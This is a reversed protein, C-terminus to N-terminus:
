LGHEVEDWFPPMLTHQLQAQAQSQPQIVACTTAIEAHSTKVLKHPQQYAKGDSDDNDNSNNDTELSLQRKSGTVTVEMLVVHPYRILSPYHRLPFLLQGAFWNSTFAMNVDYKHRRHFDTAVKHESDNWDRYYGITDLHHNAIGGNHYKRGFKIMEGDPSVAYYKWKNFCVFIKYGLYDAVPHDIWYSDPQDMFM